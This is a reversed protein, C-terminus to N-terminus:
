YVYLFLYSVECHLETEEEELAEGFCGEREGELCRYIPNPNVREGNARRRERYRRRHMHRTVCPTHAFVFWMERNFAPRSSILEGVILSSHINIHYMIVDYSM